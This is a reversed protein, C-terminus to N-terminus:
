LQMSIKNAIIRALQKFDQKAGQAAIAHSGIAGDAATTLNAQPELDVVIVRKHLEAFMWALHYLLSTKGVGRKNNFFTLIPLNM